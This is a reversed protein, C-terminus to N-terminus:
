IFRLFNRAITWEPFLIMTCRNRTGSPSPYSCGCLFTIQLTGSIHFRYCVRRHLTYLQRSGVQSCTAVSFSHNMAIRCYRNLDKYGLERIRFPLTVGRQSWKATLYTSIHHSFLYNRCAGATWLVLVMRMYQTTHGTFLNGPRFNGAHEPLSASCAM